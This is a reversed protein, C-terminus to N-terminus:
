VKEAVLVTRVAGSHLTEHEKLRWEKGFTAACGSQGCAFRQRLPAGVSPSGHVGNM